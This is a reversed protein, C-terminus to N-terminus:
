ASWYDPPAHREPVLHRARLRQRFLLAVLAGFVFGGVHAVWAVGSGPSIFFQSIFWFGLLWKASIERYLIFFFIFLSRIPANPFLVLYAGMVAAIAGSAGVVPVTSSPDVAIHAITAALGGLLYFVLFPVKGMVDEINNGFIWLYLMNGAIHLLSGHLFMSFLVALWVSKDPAFPRSEPNDRCATVDGENFTEVIEELSLPRGETVECPIAAYRLDFELEEGAQDATKALFTGQGTPQILFYIGVCAVLIALTFIPFSRTPNEDKLPIV